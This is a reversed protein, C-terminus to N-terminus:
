CGGVMSLANQKTKTSESFMFFTKFGLKAVYLNKLFIIIKISRM